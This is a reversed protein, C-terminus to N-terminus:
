FSLRNQSGGSGEPNDAPQVDAAAQRPKGVLVRIDKFNGNASKGWGQFSLKVLKGVDHEILRANIAGTGAVTVHEGDAKEIEYLYQGQYRESPRRARLVGEVEQLQGPEDGMVLIAGSGRREIWETGSSTM